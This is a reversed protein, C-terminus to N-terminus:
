SGSSKSPSMGIAEAPETVEIVQTIALVAPPSDSSIVTSLTTVGGAEVRSVQIIVSEVNVKASSTAATVIAKTSPLPMASGIILSVSAADSMAFPPASATSM